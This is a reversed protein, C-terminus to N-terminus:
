NKKEKEGLVKLVRVYVFLEITHVCINRLCDIYEKLNVYMRYEREISNVTTAYLALFCQIIYVIITIICVHIKGNQQLQHNNNNLSKRGNTYTTLCTPYALIGNKKHWQRYILYSTDTYRM